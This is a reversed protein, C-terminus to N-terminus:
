SRTERSPSMAARREPWARRKPPEESVDSAEERARDALFGILSPKGDLMVCISAVHTRAEAPVSARYRGEFVALMEAEDTLGDVPIRLGPVALTDGSICFVAKPLEDLVGQILQSSAEVDPLFILAEKDALQRRRKGPQVTSPDDTDYFEEWIAQLLDELDDQDIWAPHIAAGDEFGFGFDEHHTVDKLLAKKGIGGPGILAVLQDGTKIAQMLKDKETKRGVFPWRNPPLRRAEAPDLRQITPRAAEELSLGHDSTTALHRVGRVENREDLDHKRAVVFRDKILSWLSQDVYEELRELSSFYQATLGTKVNELQELYVGEKTNLTGSEDEKRFLLTPIGSERSIEIEEKTWQGLKKWLLVITVDTRALQREWEEQASHGTRDCGEGM